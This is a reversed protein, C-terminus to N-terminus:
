LSNKLSCLGYMKLWTKGILELMALCSRITGLLGKPQRPEGARPALPKYSIYNNEPKHMFCGEVALLSSSTCPREPGASGKSPIRVFAHTGYVYVYIYANAHFMFSLECSLSLVGLQLLSEHHLRLPKARHLPGLRVQLATNSGSPELVTKTIITTITM